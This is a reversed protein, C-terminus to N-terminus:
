AQPGHRSVALLNIDDPFPRGRGFAVAQAVLRDIVSRGDQGTLEALVQRLRCDEFCRGCTGEIAGIGDSAILLVDGPALSLRRVGYPNQERGDFLGLPRGDLLVEDVRRESAHLVFPHPLGANALQIESGELELKAAAAAVFVREPAVRHLRADMQTLIEDAEGTGAASEQFAAKVLMTILAAEAGHGMVDAVLLVACDGRWAFDYFDGGLTECPWYLNAIRFEGIPASVDPLLSRQVRAAREVQQRLQRWPRPLPAPTPRTKVVTSRFPDREKDHRRQEVRLLV